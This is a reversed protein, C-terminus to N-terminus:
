NVKSTLTTGYLEAITSRFDEIDAGYAELMFAAIEPYDKALSELDDEQPTIEELDDDNVNAHQDFSLLKASRDRPCDGYYCNEWKPVADRCHYCYNPDDYSYTKKAGSPYYYTTKVNSRAYSYSQDSLERVIPLSNLDAACISELVCQLFDTDLEEASTHARSYGVSLNTCEQIFDTYNATDTFLGTSDPRFKGGMESALAEAFENSACKGHQHTIVSHYGKRDFAIAMQIGNLIEPTHNAIYSSGKGGVEEGTHFIYLGPVKRRLMNVMIWVGATDDAGLCSSESAEKLCITTGDFEIGQRGTNRHVTDTHSSWLVTPADGIQVIRNGIGDRTANFPEDIFRRQFAREHRSLYPRCYTLMTALDELEKPLRAGNTLRVKKAPVILITM